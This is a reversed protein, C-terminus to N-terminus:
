DVNKYHKAVRDGGVRETQGGATLAKRLVHRGDVSCLSQLHGPRRGRRFASSRRSGVSRFQQCAWTCCCSARVCDAKQKTNWVDATWNEALVSPHWVESLVGTRKM